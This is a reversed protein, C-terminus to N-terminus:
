TPIALFLRLHPLLTSELGNIYKTSNMRGECVFLQGVGYDTMCGWVMISGGGHKVTPVVCESKFAKGVWRRVFTVGLTGLM